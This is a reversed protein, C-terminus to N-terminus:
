PNSKRGRKIYSGNRVTIPNSNPGNTGAFVGIGIGISDGGGGTLTFGKLDLIVSGSIATSITIAEIGTASLPFSLNRTVVYTGPATIPFPLYSIPINASQASLASMILGFAATLLIRTPHIM